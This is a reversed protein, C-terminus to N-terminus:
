QCLHRGVQDTLQADAPLLLGDAGASNTISGLLAGCRPL